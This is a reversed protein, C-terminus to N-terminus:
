KWTNEENFIGLIDNTIVEWCKEKENRSFQIYMKKETDNWIEIWAFSERKKM